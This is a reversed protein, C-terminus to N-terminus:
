GEKFIETGTKVMENTKLLVVSGQGASDVKKYGVQITEVIQSFLYDHNFLFRIKDHNAVMGALEVMAMGTKEYYKTVRGIKFM